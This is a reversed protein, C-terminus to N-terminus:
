TANKPPEKPGHDRLVEDVANTLDQLGFPKTLTKHAGMQAAVPLFDIQRDTFAGSIAIIGINKFQERIATITELGEQDPMVLDTIVLDTDSEGLLRIAIRGNSAERVEHGQARLATSIVSRIEEEDDVVLINAM